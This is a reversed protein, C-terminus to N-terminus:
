GKKTKQLFADMRARKDDSDFLAAQLASEVTMAGDQGPRSLANLAQPANLTLTDCNFVIRRYM